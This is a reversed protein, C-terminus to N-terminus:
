ELATELLVEDAASAGLPGDRPPPTLFARSEASGRLRLNLWATSYRKILAQARLPDLFDPGCGDDLVNGTDVNLYQAITDLPLECVDSFSFHGGGVLGVLLRPAAQIQQYLWVQDSPYPTVSDRTGGFIAIGPPLAAYDVGVIDLPSAAPAMAIVATWSKDQHAAAVATFGGFSHGTIATRAGDVLGAVRAGARGAVLERRVFKVDLPREVMSGAIDGEDAGALADWLTDGTHDVAAVVYGHSAWHRTVFV